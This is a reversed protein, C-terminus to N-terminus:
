VSKAETLISEELKKPKTRAVVTLAAGKWPSFLVLHVGSCMRWGSSTM